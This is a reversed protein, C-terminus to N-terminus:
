VSDSMNDRMAQAKVRAVHKHGFWVIALLPWMVYLNIDAVGRPLFEVAFHDLAGVAIMAWLLYTLPTLYRAFLETM